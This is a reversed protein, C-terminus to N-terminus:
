TRGMERALQPRVACLFVVATVSAGILDSLAACWFLDEVPRFLPLVLVLLVYLGKRFFSIPLASRTRGMATLGDVLAYQVAVGPRGAAYRRICAAALSGSGPLHGVFIRDVVSYLINFAQALMAPLGLRLVLRPIPM